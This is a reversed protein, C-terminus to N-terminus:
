PLFLTDSVEFFIKKTITEKAEVVLKIKEGFQRLAELKSVFDSFDNENMVSWSRYDNMAPLVKWLLFPNAVDTRTVIFVPFTQDGDLSEDTVKMKIVVCINLIKGCCKFDLSSTLRNSKKCEDCFAFVCDNFSKQEINVVTANLVFKQFKVEDFNDPNVGTFTELLVPIKNNFEKRILSAETSIIKKPFTQKILEKRKILFDEFYFNELFPYVDLVSRRTEFNDAAGKHRANPSRIRIRSKNKLYFQEDFLLFDFFFHPILLCSSHSNLLIVRGEVTFHITVSRLKIVQGEKLVTSAQLFLLYKRNEEDRFEISKKETAVRSTRLIIDVDQLVYKEDIAVEENGPEKIKSWWMANRISNEHFFQRTWTRLEAIREEEFLTATRNENKTISKSSRIEYGSRDDVDFIMWNSYQQMHGVLEGKDNVIFNFRRLRIIDGIHVIKPLKTADPAYIYVYVYNQFRIEDNEIVQSYNFSQDVVKLKVTYNTSEPVKFPESTDIIVGFTLIKQRSSPSEAIRALTREQHLEKITEQGAEKTKEQKLRAPM